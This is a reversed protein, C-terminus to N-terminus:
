KIPLLIVFEAGKNKEGRASIFGGHRQVIKRCLALGLGTGEYKDKSNLRTFTTFIREAQEQEFGIGNDSVVIKVFKNGEIELASSSIKIVVPVDARSFKISNNVLNYFLQYLLVSAGQLTPLPAIDLTAKKEQILVELDIQIDKLIENLDVMEPVQDAAAMTSYSLVGDIMSYMRDTASLIKNLFNNGKEPLLDKYDDQLRNSFTKIKRIPEKLDHSAVHAFQQLDENSVKLSQNLEKLAKTREQVQKELFSAQDKFDQIDSASGIWKIVEEKENKLAQAHGSFWHYLGTKVNRLRYEALWPKGTRLSESWKENVVPLDDPHILSGWTKLAVSVPQGTLREWQENIYDIDGKRDTTWAIQPITTALLRFREESAKVENEIAKVKTIDLATGIFRVPKKETDFFVQGNARITRLEKNSINILSYEIDYTGLSEPNLAWKIADTVRERDEEVIAGIADGLKINTGPDFGFLEVTKESCIIVDKVPDYEWTGLALIETAIRLREENEVLQKKSQVQETVDTALVLVGTVAGDPDRYPVYVFNFFREERTGDQRNFFAPAEFGYRTIENEFVDLMLELFPQRVMEPVIDVLTKGIVERGVQWVKLSADNAVELVMERTKFICLPSPTQEIITRFKLETEALRIRAVSQETVDVGVAVIGEVENNENRFPEYILNILIQEEIGNRMFSVPMENAMWPKGTKFVEDLIEKFGQRVIEPFINLVPKKIVEEYQKGWLLLVRDNAIEVIHDPGMLLSMAIPAQQAINRFKRESAEAKLRLDVTETVEFTFQLVGQIRGELDRWPLYTINFYHDTPRGNDDTFTAKSTQDRVTIGEHYVKDLMEFLGQGELEPLAERVKMGTIDKGIFAIGLPHFFELVHDPGKFVHIHAPSQLFLNYFDKETKRRANSIAIHNSVRALLEKSSFPKTLYDDAGANLGELKAEEGARASLFIVPIQRTSINNKLKKLLGFGDLKPMMIDSLIL